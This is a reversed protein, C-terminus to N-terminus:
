LIRNCWEGEGAFARLNTAVIEALRPGYNPSNGGAHPTLVVRPHSWLPSSPSLPETEFVDLGAGLLGGSDIAAVIDEEAVVNGRGVNVFWGDLSELMERTVLRDTDTGAPLVSVIADSRRFVEETGDVGFVEDAAGEYGDVNRKTGIVTMGWARARRAIEEGISGLGLVGLTKGTLEHLRMQRWEAREARRMSVGVGRTLALLLAFAHEAMQPGHVGTASTVVVGRCALEDLPFHDLGASISQLWRLGTLYADDWEYAILIGHKEVAAPVDAPSEPTVHAIDLAALADPLGPVHRPHLVVVQPTV